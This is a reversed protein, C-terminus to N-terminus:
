IGWGGGSCRVLQSWNSFHEGIKLKTSPSAPTRFQPSFPLMSAFVQHPNPHIWWRYYCSIVSRFSVISATELYFSNPVAARIFTSLCLPLTWWISKFMVIEWKEHENIWTSTAAERRCVNKQDFCLRRVIILPKRLFCSHRHHQDHVIEFITVLRIMIM